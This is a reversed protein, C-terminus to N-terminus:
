CPCRSVTAVCRSTQTRSTSPHREPPELRDREITEDGFSLTFAQLPVPGPPPWATWEAGADGDGGVVHMCSHRDTSGLGIDTLWNSLIWRRHGLTAANNQGFDVIYGDVSRVGPITSLNSRGAAEAGLESYCDWSAPPGHDLTNNARMMLACAQAAEDREPSTDVEPLGAMWRYLNVLRLANDRGSASIDGPECTDTSGSWSGEDLDVRDASWRACVEAVWDPDDYTSPDCDNDIGDLPIETDGLAPDDDDCDDVANLGDGDLDDDPTEADCDNDIGDYPIEEAGPYIAPDSYDCDEHEVFVEEEADVSCAAVLTIMWLHM